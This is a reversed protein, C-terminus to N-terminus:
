FDARQKRRIPTVWPRERLREISMYAVRGYNESEGVNFGVRHLLTERISTQGYVGLVDTNELANALREMGELLLSRLEAVNKIIFSIEETEGSPELYLAIWWGETLPEEGPEVPDPEYALLENLRYLGIEPIVLPKSMALDGVALVVLVRISHM